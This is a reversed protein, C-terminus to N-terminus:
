WPTGSDALESCPTKAGTRSPVTGAVGRAKMDEMATRNQAGGRFSHLASYIGGNGDPAQAVKEAKDGEMM